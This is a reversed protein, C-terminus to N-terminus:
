EAVCFIINKKISVIYVCWGVLWGFLFMIFPLIKKIRKM